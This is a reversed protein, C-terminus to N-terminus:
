QEQQEQQKQQELMAEAMKRGYIEMVKEGDGDAEHMAEVLAKVTPLTKEVMAEIYQEPTTGTFQQYASFLSAAEDSLAITVNNNDAM